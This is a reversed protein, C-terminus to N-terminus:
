RLKGPSCKNLTCEQKKGYTKAFSCLNQSNLGGSEKGCAGFEGKPYVFQKGLFFLLLFLQGENNLLKNKWVFECGLSVYLACIQCEWNKNSGWLGSKGMIQEQLGLTEM